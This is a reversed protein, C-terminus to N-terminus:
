ARSVAHSPHTAGTERTETEAGWGDGTLHRAAEAEPDRRAPKAIAGDQM